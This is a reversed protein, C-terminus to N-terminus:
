ADAELRRLHASVADRVAPDLDEDALLDDYVRRADHRRGTAQYAYGLCHRFRAEGVPVLGTGLGAEFHGIAEAFRDLQFLAHGWVLDLRARQLPTLEAGAAAPAAALVAPYDARRYADFVSRLDAPVPAASRRPVARRARVLLYGVVAGAVLGALLAALLEVAGFALRSRM